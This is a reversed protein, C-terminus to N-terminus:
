KTPGNQKPRCGLIFDAVIIYKDPYFKRLTDLEAHFSALNCLRIHNVLDLPEPGAPPTKPSRSMLNLLPTKPNPKM